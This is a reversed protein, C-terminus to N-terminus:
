GLHVDGDVILNSRHGVRGSNFNGVIPVHRRDRWGSCTTCDSRPDDHRREWRSEVEAAAVTADPARGGTQQGVGGVRDVGVVAATRAAGGEREAEVPRQGRAGLTRVDRAIRGNAAVDRELVVVRRPGGEHVGVGLRRSSLGVGAGDEVVTTHRAPSASVVALQTISCCTVFGSRREGAAETCTAGCYRKRGSSVVGAGNEVVTGHRAPSPSIRALQTM